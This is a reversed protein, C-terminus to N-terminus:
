PSWWATATAGVNVAQGASPDGLPAGDLVFRWSCHGSTGNTTQQTAAMELQVHTPATVSFSTSLGIATWASTSTLITPGGTSEASASLGGQATQTAFLRFKAYGNNGQGASCTGNPSTNSLQAKITHAGATMDQGWKVAVPSWWGTAPDNVHLAQGYTADGLPAGDIVFRYSCYAPGAGAVYQTGVLSMQVHKPTALNIAIGVGPIDVWNTSNGLNGTDGTSEAYFADKPDYAAVALRSRDYASGGDGDLYCNSYGNANVMQVGITHLGLGLPVAIETTFMEHWRVPGNEVMIANGWNVDGTPVDDIVFRQGVHCFNNGGGGAFRLTGTWRLFALSAAYLTPTLYLGSPSGSTWTQNGPVTLDNGSSEVSWARVGCVGGMCRQSVCDSELVCAQGDNCSACSGGCDVDTEDGDKKANGCTSSDVNVDKASVDPVAADSGADDNTVPTSACAALVVCSLFWKM